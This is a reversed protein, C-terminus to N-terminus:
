SINELLFWLCLVLLVPLAHKPTKDLQLGSSRQFVLLEPIISFTGNATTYQPSTPTTSLM